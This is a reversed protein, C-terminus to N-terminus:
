RYAGWEIQSLLADCARVTAAQEREGMDGFLEKLKLKVAYKAMAPVSAIDAYGAVYTITVANLRADLSPYSFGDDWELVAGANTSPQLRYDSTSVTQSAGDDDCYTVSTISKVPQRDFRVPSCPWQCYTQTLTHSVRLSRGVVSECYEIAAELAAQIEVDLDDSLIRLHEKAEALTVPLDSSKATVATQHSNM